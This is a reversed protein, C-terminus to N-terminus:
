ESLQSEARVKRDRMPNYLQLGEIDEFALVKGIRFGLADTVRRAVVYTTLHNAEEIRILTSLSVNALKALESRSVYYAERIDRLTSM